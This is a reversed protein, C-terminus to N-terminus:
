WYKGRLALPHAVGLDARAVIPPVYPFNQGEEFAPQPDEASAPPPELLTADVYTVSVAAILWDLPRTSAYVVAGLRRTAGIRELRGGRPDFAGDDSPQTFYGATTISLKQDEGFRLGLDASRVKSFPAREGDDLMRPQPSRYGEGYAMKIALWSLPTIE